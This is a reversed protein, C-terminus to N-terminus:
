VADQSIHPNILPQSESNVSPKTGLRKASEEISKKWDYILLFGLTCACSTFMAVGTFGWLLYLGYEELHFWFILVAALPIGFIYYGIFQFMAGM